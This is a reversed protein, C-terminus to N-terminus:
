VDCAQLPQPQRTGLLRPTRVCEQGSQPRIRSLSTLAASFMREAPVRRDPALTSPQMTRLGLLEGSSRPSGDSQKEELHQNIAALAESVTQYGAFTAVTAQPAGQLVEQLVRKSAKIVAGDAAANSQGLQQALLRQRELSGPAIEMLRADVAPFRQELLAVLAQYIAVAPRERRFVNPEMRAAAGTALALMVANVLSM